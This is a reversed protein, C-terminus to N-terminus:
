IGDPFAPPSIRRLTDVRDSTVPVLSADIEVPVGVLALRGASGDPKSTTCVEQATFIERPCDGGDTSPQRVCTVLRPGLLGIVELNQAVYGPKSGKQASVLIRFDFNGEAVRKNVFGDVSAM